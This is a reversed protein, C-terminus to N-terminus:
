AVKRKSPVQVPTARRQGRDAGLIFGGLVMLVGGSAVFTWELTSLDVPTVEQYNPLQEDFVNVTTTFRGLIAEFNGLATALAPFNQGLFGQLQEPTMQLRAALDPLMETQMETGMAGLVQLAGRANTILEATYVPKLNANMADADDAKQPLSLVISGFLMVAGLALALAPAVLGGRLLGIGILVAAIGAIMFGWPVTTAPLNATPIEDASAFRAREEDLVDVVGSFQPGVAPLAQLGAAVDPYESAVFASFEEASLGLQQALAPAVQNQFEDSVPAVVALDARLDSINDATMQPRFGDTLNEFAPAVSYLNNTFTLVIALVGVAVVVIGAMSRKTSM